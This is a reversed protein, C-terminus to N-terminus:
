ILLILHKNVYKSIEEGLGLTGCLRFLMRAMESDGIEEVVDCAAKFIKEIVYRFNTPDFDLDFLPTSRLSSLSPNKKFLYFSKLVSMMKIQRLNERKEYYEIVEFYSDVNIDALIAETLTENILDIVLSEDDVLYYLKILKKKENKAKLIEIVRKNIKRDLYLCTGDEIGLVDYLGVKVIMEPIINYYNEVSYRLSDLLEVKRQTSSFKSAVLFVFDIFVKKNKCRSCLVKMVFYSPVISFDGRFVLEMGKDYNKTMVYALLLGKPNQYNRFLELIDAASRVENLCMLQMWIFDEISGIVYGDARGNGGGMLGLFFAKFLDHSPEIKMPVTPQVKTALWNSFNTKFRHAIHEFFVHFKELLERVSDTLGCRFLTYLEAFLYRGEYMELKYDQRSYRLKVFTSVKNEIRKLPTRIKEANERLFREIYKMYENGLFGIEQEFSESSRLNRLFMYIDFLMADNFYRNGETIRPSSGEQEEMVVPDKDFVLELDGVKGSIKSSGIVFLDNEKKLEKVHKNLCHMFNRNVDKEHEKQKRKLENHLFGNVIDKVCLGYKKPKLVNKLHTPQISVKYRSLKQQKRKLSAILQIYNYIKAPELVLPAMVLEEKM